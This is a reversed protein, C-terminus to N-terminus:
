KMYDRLLLLVNVGMFLFMTLLVKSQPKKFKTYYTLLPYLTIFPILFWSLYAVRDTFEIRIVLIWMANAFIYSRVLLGYLEDQIGKKGIYYYAFLLPMISYLLFDLRFGSKYVSSAGGITDGYKMVRQDLDAFNNLVDSVNFNLITLLLCMVWFVIFFRYDRIYKAILLSLIFIIVSKHFLLAFILLAIRIISNSDKRFSFLVFAIALGQRLTNTGYSSFGLVGTSMVLFYMIRKKDLINLAFSYYSLVYILATMFWLMYINSGFLKACVINHLVWGMDKYELDFGYTSINYFAKEYRDKDTLNIPDIPYGALSFILIIIYIFSLWPAINTIRGKKVPISILFLLIVFPLFDVVFKFM